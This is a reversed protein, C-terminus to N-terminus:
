DGKFCKSADATWAEINELDVTKDHKMETENLSGDRNISKGDDGTAAMKKYKKRMFYNIAVFMCGCVMYNVGIILLLDHPLVAITKDILSVIVFGSGQLFSVMAIAYLFLSNQNRIWQRYDNQKELRIYM